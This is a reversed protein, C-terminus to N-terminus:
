HHAVGGRSKSPHHAVGVATDQFNEFHGFGAAAGVRGGQQADALLVGADVAKVRGPQPGVDMVQGEALRATAGFIIQCIHNCRGHLLVQEDGGEEGVVGVFAQAGARAGFHDGHFLRKA